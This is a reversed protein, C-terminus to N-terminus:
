EDLRSTVLQLNQELEFMDSGYQFIVTEDTNLYVNNTSHAPVLDNMYMLFM